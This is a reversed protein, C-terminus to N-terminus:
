WVVKKGAPPAIKRPAPRQVPSGVSKAVTASTNQKKAAPTKAIIKNAATQKAPAVNETIQEASLYTLVLEVNLLRMIKYLREVSTSAPNAEIQAYSQQTIGLQNAVETQTLNAKKRCGQLIPRLQSLTKIPYDM